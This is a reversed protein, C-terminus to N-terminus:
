LRYGRSRLRTHDPRHDPLPLHAGRLRAGEGGCWHAGYDFYMESDATPDGGTNMQLSGVGRAGFMWGTAGTRHYELGGRFTLVNPSYAEFDDYDSIAGASMALNDIAKSSSKSM